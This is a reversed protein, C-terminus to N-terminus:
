DLEGAIFLSMVGLDPQGRGSGAQGQTGALSLSDVVDSPLRKWHRVVSM